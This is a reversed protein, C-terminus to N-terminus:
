KIVFLVHKWDYHLLLTSDIPHGRIGAQATSLPTVEPRLAILKALTQPAIDAVGLGNNTYTHILNHVPAAPLCGKCVPQLDRLLQTLNLLLQLDLLLGAVCEGHLCTVYQIM